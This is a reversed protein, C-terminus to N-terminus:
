QSALNVVLTVKGAYSTLETEKGDLAKVKLKYLSDEPLTVEQKKDQVCALALVILINRM